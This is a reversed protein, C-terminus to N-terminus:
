CNEQLATLHQLLSAATPRGEPDAQWCANILDRLKSGQGTVTFAPTFSPRLNYAVVAYVVCQHDGSYPLERSVMQWLTIAFSYIDAKPTVRDGKLLEPARHTYTGGLQCRRAGATALDQLRQSCGFDGIKCVDGEALLLNAPKLDLHVIGYSHLFLLGRAVQHAYLLCRSLEPAPHGGGGYLAHHLTSGSVYEMIITGLSDRDEAASASAALLRVLHCHRLNAVNLEGWFSQCCALRNRDSRKVKKVAVTQGYYTARYVSGFGGAGLPELLQVQEWDISCWALRPPLRRARSGPPEGLYLRGPKCSIELPSSCPRLDLSPSLERSLFRQMPVPSPM